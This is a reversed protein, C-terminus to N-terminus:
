EQNKVKIIRKDELELVLEETVDDEEGPETGSIQGRRIKKLEAPTTRVISLINDPKKLLKRLMQKVEGKSKGDAYFTPLGTVKVEWKVAEDFEMQGDVVDQIAAQMTKQYRSM